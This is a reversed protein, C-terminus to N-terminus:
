QLLERYKKIIEDITFNRILDCGAEALNMVRESIIKDMRLFLEEKTKFMYCHKSPVLFNEYLPLNYLLLQKKLLFSIYLYARDLLYSSFDIIMYSVKCLDSFINLDIFSIYIVNSPLENLMNNEKKTLLYSSQYGVYAFDFKPYRLAMDHMYPIYQYYLDIVIIKKRRKSLHYKNYIDKTNRSINIIPLEFYIVDIQSCDKRFLTKFYPLSVIVKYCRQFFSHYRNRIIRSRKQNSMFYHFIKNEELHTMFIIKKDPYQNILKLTKSNLEALLIYSFEEGFDTTYHIDANKLYQIVKSLFSHNEIYVFIM